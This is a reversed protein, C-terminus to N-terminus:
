FLFFLIKRKNFKFATDGGAIHASIGGKYHIMEDLFHKLIFMKFANLGITYFNNASIKRSNSYKVLLMEIDSM